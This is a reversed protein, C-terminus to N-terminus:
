HAEEGATTVPEEDLVDVITKLLLFVAGREGQPAWATAEECMRRLLARQRLAGSCALWREVFRPHAVGLAEVLALNDAHVAILRDTADISREASGDGRLADLAEVALELGRWAGAQAGTSLQRTGAVVYAVLEPRGSGLRRARDLSGGDRDLRALAREVM